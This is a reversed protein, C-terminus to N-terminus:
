VSDPSPGGVVAGVDDNRIGFFFGLPSCGLEVTAADAEGSLLAPELEDLLGSERSRERPEQRM